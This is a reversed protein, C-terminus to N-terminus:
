VRNIFRSCLYNWTSVTQPMGQAHAAITNIWSERFTRANDGSQFNYYFQIGSNRVPNIVVFPSGVSILKWCLPVNRILGNAGKCIPISKQRQIQWLMSNCYKIEISLKQGHYVQDWMSTGRRHSQNVVYIYTDNNHLHQENLTNINHMITMLIDIYFRIDMTANPCVFQCM